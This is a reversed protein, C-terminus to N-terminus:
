NENRQEVQRHLLRLFKTKLAELTAFSGLLHNAHWRAAPGELTMNFEAIKSREAKPKTLKQSAHNAEWTQLFVYVHAEVDLDEHYKSYPYSMTYDEFPQVPPTHKEKEAPPPSLTRDKVIGAPPSPKHDKVKEMPPSPTHDQVKEAPPSPTRKTKSPSQRQKPLLPIEEM